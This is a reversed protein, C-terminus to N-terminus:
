QDDVNNDSTDDVYEHRKFHLSIDPKFHRLTILICNLFHILFMQLHIQTKKQRKHGNEFCKFLQSSM